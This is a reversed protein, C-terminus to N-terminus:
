LTCQPPANILVFPIHEALKIDTFYSPDVIDLEFLVPKIQGAFPLAFHLTLLGKELSMWYDEPSAFKLEHGDSIARTFFRSNKLADINAQALSALEERTTTTESTRTTVSATLSEDFAWVYRLSDIKGDPSFVIEGRLTVWLHPHAAASQGTLLWPILAALQLRRAGFVADKEKKTSPAHAAIAEASPL